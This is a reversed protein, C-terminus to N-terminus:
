SSSEQEIMGSWGEDLEAEADIARADIWGRRRDISRADGELIVFEVKRVTFVIEDGVERGSPILRIDFALVFPGFEM